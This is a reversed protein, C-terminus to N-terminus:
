PTDYYFFATCAVFLAVLGLYVMPTMPVALATLCGVLLTGLGSVLISGFLKRIKM